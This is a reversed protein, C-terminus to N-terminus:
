SYQEKPNQAEWDSHLRECEAVLIRCHRVRTQFAAPNQNIAEVPLQELERMEAMVYDLADPVSAFYFPTRGHDDRWVMVDIPEGRTEPTMM